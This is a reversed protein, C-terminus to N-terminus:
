AATDNLAATKDLDEAALVGTESSMGFLDIHYCVDTIICM